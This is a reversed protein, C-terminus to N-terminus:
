GRGLVSRGCKRDSRWRALLGRRRRRATRQVPGAIGPRRSSAGYVVLVPAATLTRQRTRASARADSREIRRCHPRWCRTRSRETPASGDREGVASCVAPKISLCCEGSTLRVRQRSRRPPSSSNARLLVRPRPVPLTARCPFRFSARCASARKDRVASTQSAAQLERSAIHLDWSPQNARQPPRDPAQPRPSLTKTPPQLVVALQRRGKLSLAANAHLKM